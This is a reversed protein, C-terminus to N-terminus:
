SARSLDSGNAYTLKRTQSSRSLITGNEADLHTVPLSMTGPKRPRTARFAPRTPACCRQARSKALNRTRKKKERVRGHLRMANAMGARAWCAGHFTDNQASESRNLIEADAVARKGANHARHVDVFRAGDTEHISPSNHLREGSTSERKIRITTWERGLHILM